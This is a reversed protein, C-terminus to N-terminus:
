KNIFLQNTQELAHHYKEEDQLIIERYLIDAVFLQPIQNSLHTSSIFDENTPLKLIHIGPISISQNATILCVNTNNVLCHQIGQQICTSTGSRSFCVVFDDSTSHKSQILISDEESGTTVHLGLYSLKSGFEVAVNGSNGLGLVIIRKAHHIKIAIDNLEDFDASNVFTALLKSYDNVLLLYHLKSNQDKSVSGVYSLAHRLEIFGSYDLKKAFRSISSNSVGIQTAIDSISAKSFEASHELFQEAIYDDIETFRDKALKLRELFDKSLTEM